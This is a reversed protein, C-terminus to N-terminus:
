LNPSPFYILDQLETRLLQYFRNKHDSLVSCIKWQSLSVGLRVLDSHSWTLFPNSLFSTVNGM